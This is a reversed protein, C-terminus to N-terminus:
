DESNQSHTNTEDHLEEWLNQSVTSALEYSFGRRVLHAILKQHFLRAPAGKLRQAQRRALAQAAAEEDLEKLAQQITQEDLGKQRLEQRLLRASRPRFSQRNEIWDQAFQLDDLLGNQRLRDLTEQIVTQDWGKQELRQCLERESRARYSILRLAYQLAQERTDAAKLSAIKEASLEEGVRLWAAVLRSLAFAFEGDLYINVRQPNRKQPEIATIKGM